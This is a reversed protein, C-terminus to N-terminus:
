RLNHLMYKDGGGYAVHKYLTKVFRVKTSQMM